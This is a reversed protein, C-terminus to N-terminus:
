SRARLLELLATFDPPLPAELRLPLGTIPHDLALRAAHLALRDFNRIASRVVGDQLWIAGGPAHPIACLSIARGGALAIKHLGGYAYFGIWEGDPSFFPAKAGETESIARVEFSDIRRLFLRTAPGDYDVYVLTEGDPSLAFPVTGTSYDLM